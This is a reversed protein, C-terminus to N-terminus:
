FNKYGTLKIQTSNLNIGLQVGKSDSADMTPSVKVSTLIEVGSGITSFKLKFPINTGNIPTKSNQDIAGFKVKGDISNVFVYWSNPLDSKLEEFKIKSPDYDFQFQLGSVANGNTTLSVPIEVNNSTVTVNVLNVDISSIDNPTNIFSTSQTAMTRFATNTMLSNVANTQVTNAGNSITVVQSSHSRNVDGWLLYKLDVIENTGLVGTKVYTKPYTIDKWNSSTISGWSNSPDANFSFEAKIGYDNNGMTRIYPAFTSTSITSFTSPVKYFAWAADKSMFEVPGSYLDFLQLSKIHEPLTNIGNFERLDIYVRAQGSGYGDVNVICWETQGAISTADTARWTPLSMWGNSGMAYGSPITVLTDIGVVQGLLRPLDGGDIVKNRNIDAAYLSQGTKLIQGNSGDLGMSTFESQATTFDSITIAGNYVAYTKDISHMLSVEYVKNESLLSQNIDVNGNSLVSFLQGIGSLTDRFSVKVDSLSLLNSSVDVKATVLKGTNQNMIVETSLPTDMITPVGVGQGNWGAVFNLKIPNFSNATSAAKLRLRVVLMQSFSNFPMAGTGMIAWTLTARLIANSGTANYAYTANSVYRQTGNTFTSNGAYSYGPYNQWSLQINSGQPFVGGNGGTGTHNVSVIEFNTQDYQFDFLLQRTVADGNGNAHVMVDFQDGRDIVGGNIDTLVRTDPFKFKIQGFSSLSILIFGLTLFKKM